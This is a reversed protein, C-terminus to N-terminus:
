LIEALKEILRDCEEVTNYHVMSVRVVGQNPLLGLDEILRLAYFHGYRIGINHADLYPPVQDSSMDEVVFSITSVRQTPDATDRGIIRVKPRDRLFSLLRQNLVGEHTQILDFAREISDGGAPGHHQALAEFYEPIATLSYSLEYSSGGPQFKYPIAADDIFYHNYGPLALLLEKKGYLLAQHPGYVKYLSFTYFDVDLAQVDVRRHPAFAVGDVCLLAEHAHVLDAIARVPNISGLVNSAHTVAVLRTRPTLLAELDALELDFTTPNVRWTKIVVGDRELETWPSINAEHDANTVVIEDGPELTPRFCQALIRLLASTSSGLIVEAPDAANIFQAMAKSGAAVRETARQSVAYSAGLQVNSEYLFETIRDVVPRLIQSGGANDFFVWDGALSPFYQRVFDLQLTPSQILM